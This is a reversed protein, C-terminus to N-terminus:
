MWGLSGSANARGYIDKVTIDAKTQDGNEVLADFASFNDCKTLMRCVTSITLTSWTIPLRNFAFLQGLLLGTHAEETVHALYEFM